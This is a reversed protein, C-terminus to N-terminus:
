YLIERRILKKKRLENLSNSGTLFMIKKITDFWDIILNNVGEVGNIDLQKLVTRASAVFDSGLAFAKAAEVASNIGGSGIM